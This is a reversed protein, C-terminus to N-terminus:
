LTERSQATLHDMNKKAEAANIGYYTLTHAPYAQGIRVTMETLTQVALQTHYAHDIKPDAHLRTDANRV